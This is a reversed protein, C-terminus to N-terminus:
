RGSPASRELPRGYPDTKRGGRRRITKLTDPNVWPQGMACPQPYGDEDVTEHAPFAARDFRTMMRKAM